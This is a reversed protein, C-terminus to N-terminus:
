NIKTGFVPSSSLHCHEDNHLAGLEAEEKGEVIRWMIVASATVLKQTDRCSILM